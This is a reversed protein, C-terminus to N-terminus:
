KKEKEFVLTLNKKISDKGDFAMFKLSLKKGNL